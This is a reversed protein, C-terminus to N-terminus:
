ELVLSDPQSRLAKLRASSSAEKPLDRLIQSALVLQQKQTLRRLRILIEPGRGIAAADAINQVAERILTQLPDLFPAGLLRRFNEGINGTAGYPESYLRLLEKTM